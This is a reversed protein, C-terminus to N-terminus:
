GLQGHVGARLAVSVLAAVVTVALAIRLRRAPVGRCAALHAAALMTAIMLWLHYRLDSAISVVAFSATQVIASGALALGLTRAPQIPAALLTWFLGCALVLWVAPVGAPTAATTAAIPALLAAARTAPQGIAAPSALSTAPGTALREDAPAVLRLTANLHALRHLAYALPHAVVLGIWQGEISPADEDRDFALMTAIRGCKKPDGLSDWFFPTYCHRAEADAWIAPPLGPLTALHAHHAIGAMDFVPLTREVHSHEAGLLRHDIAGSAAIVALCAVVLLLARAWLRRVGGWGIWGFALPIVSFVANARLLAAYGLLAVTLAITWPRMRGPGLRGWAVLGCAAVLAGILQCDKLVCVMWSASVPFLPIALTAIAARPAGSRALAAAVLGIGAWLLGWQLVLMPETGALGAGLLVAWLRAMVPPHWDDYSATTAQTYQSITDYTAVGPWFAALCAIALLAAVFLLLSPRALRM